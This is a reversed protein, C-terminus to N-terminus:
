GVTQQVQLQNAQQQRIGPIVSLETLGREAFMKQADTLSLGKVDPVVVAEGHRTYADLAKLVGCLCGGAVVIMAAINIWFLKNQRFSFFEKITMVKAKEPM